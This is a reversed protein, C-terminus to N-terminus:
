VTVNCESKQSLLENMDSRYSEYSNWGILSRINAAYSVVQENDLNFAPDLINPGYNHGTALAKLINKNLQNLNSGAEIHNYQNRGALIVLGLPVGRIERGRSFKGAQKISPPKCDSVLFKYRSHLESPISFLEIAKFAIQLISGSTVEMSFFMAQYEERALRAKKFAKRIDPNDMWKKFKIEFEEKTNSEFNPCPPIGAEILKGYHIISDFLKRVAYETQAFYDEKIIM